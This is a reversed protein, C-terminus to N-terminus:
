AASFGIKQFSSMQMALEVMHDFRLLSELPQANLVHQPEVWGRRATAVAYRTFELQEPGLIDLRVKASHKGGGASM